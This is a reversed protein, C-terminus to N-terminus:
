AAVESPLLHAVSVKFFEALTVVEALEFAVKGVLRRSVAQQSLGLVAAIDAQTKDNRVMEARIHRSVIEATKTQM